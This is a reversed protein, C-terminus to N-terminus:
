CRPRRVGRRQGGPFLIRIITAKVHAEARSSLNLRHRTM